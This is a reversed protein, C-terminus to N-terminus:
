LHAVRHPRLPLRQWSSGSLILRFPNIPLNPNVAILLLCVLTLVTLGDCGFKLTNFLRDRTAM